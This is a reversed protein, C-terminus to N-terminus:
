WRSNQTCSENETGYLNFKLEGVELNLLLSILQSLVSVILPQKVVDHLLKSLRM